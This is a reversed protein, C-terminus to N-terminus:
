RGRLYRALKIVTNSSQIAVASVSFRSSRSLEDVLMVTKSKMFHLAAMLSNSEPGDEDEEDASRLNLPQRDDSGGLDRRIRSVLKELDALHKKDQASLVTKEDVSDTLKEVLKLAEQGRQLMAEHEKRQQSIQRNTLLDRVTRAPAERNREDSPATPDAVIQASATLAGGAYSILLVLLSCLVHIM